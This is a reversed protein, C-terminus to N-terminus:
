RRRHRGFSRHHLRPQRHDLDKHSRHGRQHRFRCRRRHPGGADNTVTVAQNGTIGHRAGEILGGTHNNVIGSGITQFDIADNGTDGPSNHGLIRGFNDILMNVGGRIADADAAQILGSAENTLHITGGTSVLDAFDFAQGNNSGTAGTSQVTGANDVTVQYAANPTLTAATIRVADGQSQIVGHQQNALTFSSLSALTSTNLNISRSASATADILGDNTITIIGAGPRIADDGSAGILAGTHNIINIVATSSVIAGFDLAQGSAHAIVTNSADVAGSVISGSNDVTITGSTINTNIRFADNGSSILKAGVENVFKISGTSFSGSTDIGRTTASITGANDVVVGPSTSGGTWTIDTTDSLIGGAEITGIDNNGVTKATTVTSGTAVTFSTM